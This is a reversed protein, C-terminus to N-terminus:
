DARDLFAALRREDISRDLFARGIERVLILGINGGRNKKDRRIWDVLRGRRNALGVDRLRVPLGADTLHAIVRDADGAPCHGLEL